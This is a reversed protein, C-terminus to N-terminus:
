RGTYVVKWIRGTADDAIYLAGDPGVALGTPRRNPGTGGSNPSFGDAFTEFAGSATGNRIPQFVVRFGAQPEPARNWSGHFAIFVGGQYKGPFATGTYFALDNPAWHGPFVAVPAKKSACRASKKGDGGYEPADVLKREVNSYYCYPWGFDDGRDLRVLQEAPNEAGYKEDFLEPWAQFLADRGHQTAWVRGDPGITVGVANRLGTVFRVGDSQKQGSKRADFRWIGARTELEPCPDPPRKQDAGRGACVNTASGINVYLGGDPTIAFTKTRHSMVNPLGSVITDAPGTPTAEGAKIPFRFVAGGNEAYVHNDFVAVESSAFGRAVDHQSDARGDRNGDRLMIVGGNPAVGRGGRGMLSVYVDGNAMVRLHRPAPLSDAFISACFGQPLNIGGNDPACDARQSQLPAALLLLTAATFGSTRAHNM